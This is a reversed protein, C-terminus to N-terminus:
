RTRAFKIISEAAEEVGVSSTNVHYDAVEYYPKRKEIMEKIKKQPNEVNLLPRHGRSKTRKHIDGPEAWLTILLSKKRLNNINEKDLVVGGGADVVVNELESVDRVIDKEVQRFYPEKKKEFIENISMGEKEVIMGDTSVYRMGTKECIKKSIASKGTGMYGLLVINRM